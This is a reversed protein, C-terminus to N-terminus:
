FMLVDASSIVPKTDLIAFLIKAASGSGDADFWLSGTAQEYIVRDSVDLAATGAVFEYGQLATLSPVATADIKIFDATTFDYIRDIGSAAGLSQRFQFRDVGTGGFLADN